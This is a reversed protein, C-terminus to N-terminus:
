LEALISEVLEAGVREQADITQAGIHPTFIINDLTLLPSDGPPETVFVDLCAGGIKKDKLASYLADEDIIGGRSINIIIASDKMIALEDKGILGRTADLLPVHISVIDSRKLLEPLECLEVGLAVADEKKVFPDYALVECNFGGLLGNVLRGIHGFGVIGWTKGSIERGRLAKKEWSGAKTTADAKPIGRFSSLALGLTLEAVSLLNATPTNIVKIGLGKAADRDVNDLGVGARGIIKLSGKSAEMLERTVKTRSRIVLVDFGTIKGLLDSPEWDLFEEVENEALLASIADASIKDTILIKAM